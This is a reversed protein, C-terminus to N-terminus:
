DAVFRAATWAARRVTELAAKEVGASKGRVSGRACFFNTPHSSFRKL